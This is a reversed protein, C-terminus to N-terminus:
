FVERHNESKKLRGEKRLVRQVTDASYLTVKVPRVKGEVKGGLRCCEELRPKEDVTALIGLVSQELEEETEEKVGFMMLSRTRDEEQVAVKVAQKVQAPTVVETSQLPWKKAADAYSRMETKVTAQVADLQEDKHKLLESQQEIIQKQFSIHQRKMDDLDGLAGKMMDRCLVLVAAMTEVCEALEHKKGYRMIYIM